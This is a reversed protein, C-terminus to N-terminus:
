KALYELAEDKWGARAGDLSDMWRDTEDRAYSAHDVFDTFAQLLAYRSHKAAGTLSRGAEFNYTISRGAEIRKNQERSSLDKEKPDGVMDYIFERLITTNVQQKALREMMKTDSELKLHLEALLGMDANIKTEASRTHRHRMMMKKAVSDAEALRRTNDCVIRTLSCFMSHASQGYTQYYCLRLENPSEDGRVFYQEAVMQIWWTRGAELTGTGCIRLDKYEALLIETMSNFVDRHPTATYVDGVAPALVMWPSTDTRVIANSGSLIPSHDPDSMVFTPVKEIPFAVTEAAEQTTVPRNGVLRYQKLGHWTYSGSLVGIDIQEIKHAM